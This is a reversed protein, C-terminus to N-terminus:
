IIQFVYLPMELGFSHRFWLYLGRAMQSWGNLAMQTPALGYAHLIRQFFIHLLLRMGDVFPKCGRMPFCARENPEPLMLGIDSLVKYADRLLKLDEEVMISPVDLVAWRVPDVRFMDEGEILRPPSAIDM